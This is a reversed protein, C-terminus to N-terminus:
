RVMFIATLQNVGFDTICRENEKRQAKEEDDLDEDKKLYDCKNVTPRSYKYKGDDIRLNSCRYENRNLIRFLIKVSCLSPMSIMNYYIYSGSQWEIRICIDEMNQKCHEKRKAVDYRKEYCESCLNDFVDCGYYDKCEICKFRSLDIMAEFKLILEIMEAYLGDRKGCMEIFLDKLGDRVKDMPDTPDETNQSMLGLKKMDAKMDHMDQASDPNHRLAKVHKGYKDLDIGDNYDDGAAEENLKEALDQKYQSINERICEIINYIQRDSSVMEMFTGDDNEIKKMFSELEPELIAIATKIEKGM